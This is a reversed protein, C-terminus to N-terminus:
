WLEDREIWNYCAGSLVINFDDKRGHVINYRCCWKRCFMNKSFESERNPFKRKNLSKKQKTKQFVPFTQTPCINAKDASKLSVIIFCHPFRSETHHKSSPKSGERFKKIPRFFSKNCSNNKENPKSANFWKWTWIETMDVYLVKM